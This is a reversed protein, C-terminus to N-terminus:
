PRGWVELVDVTTRWEEFVTDILRGDGDFMQREYPVVIDVVIAVVSGVEEFTMGLSFRTESQIAADLGVTGPSQTGIRPNNVYPTGYVRREAASLDVIGSTLENVCEFNFTAPTGLVVEVYPPPNTRAATEAGYGELTWNFSATLNQFGAVVAIPPTNFAGQAGRRTFRGMVGTGFPPLDSDPAADSVGLLSFALPSDPAPTAAIYNPQTNSRRFTNLRTGQRDTLLFQIPAALDEAYFHLVGAPDDTVTAPIRLLIRYPAASLPALDGRFFFEQSEASEIRWVGAGAATAMSDADTEPVIDGRYLKQAFDSWKWYWLTDGTAESFVLDHARGAALARWIGGVFGLGYQDRLERIFLSAGYGHQDADGARSGGYNLFGNLPFRSANDLTVVAPWFGAGSVEFEIWTSCAERLWGATDALIWPPPAYHYQLLHFLEHAGTARFQAPADPASLLRANLTIYDHDRGRRSLEGYGWAGESRYGGGLTNSFEFLQVPIPWTARGPFGLGVPGTLLEFADELGDNIASVTSAFAHGVLATPFTTRFHGNRSDYSTQGTLAYVRVSGDAQKAESIPRFKGVQYADLTARLMGDELVAPLLVRGEVFRTPSTRLTEELVALYTEGSLAGTPTVAIEIPERLTDPLGHISFLPSAGFPDPADPDAQSIGLATPGGLAGAPVIVRMGATILAGGEEGVESFAVEEVFVATVAIDGTMEIEIPNQNGSLGDTWREFLWGAAPEATLVVRGGIEYGQPPMAPDAAVTGAGVTTVDLLAYRPGKSVVLAVATRAAVRQGASPAQSLVQGVPVTDHHQETVAGRRLDAGALASEAANVTMGVVSPVVVQKQPPTPCGVLVMLLPAFLVFLWRVRILVNM